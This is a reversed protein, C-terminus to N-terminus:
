LRTQDLHVSIHKKNLDNFFKEKPPLSTEDFKEFNDMYSYPYVGKRTLMQFAEEPLHSWKDKFYKYLNPFVDELQTGHVAKAALNETLKELSSNLFQLSDKFQLKGISFTVFKEIAKAIVSPTEVNAKNLNNFIIHSDYGGLNHFFLPIKKVTRMSINCKSHAAGRFKGTFHDHDRM